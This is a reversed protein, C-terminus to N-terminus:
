LERISVEGYRLTLYNSDEKVILEGHDNVGKVEVIKKEDKMVIECEKAKLIDLDEFDSKFSKFGNESFDRTLIFIKNILDGIIKNRDQSANSIEDLSVWSQDIDKGELENMHINIGIGIIIGAKGSLDITEILIGAIKKNDVLLDNPWKLKIKNNAYKNLYKAAVTGVSLSLGDLESYNLNSKWGISLYINRGKPSVWKKGNRGKGTVQQETIHFSLNNEQKVLFDKADDNTSGTLESVLLDPHCDLLKKSLFNLIKDKDLSPFIQKMDQFDHYKKLKLQCLLGATLSNRATKQGYNIPPTPSRDFGASQLDAAEHKSPEFGEGEVM